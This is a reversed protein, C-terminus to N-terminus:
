KSYYSFNKVASFFCPKLSFENVFFVSLVVVKERKKKQKILHRRKM